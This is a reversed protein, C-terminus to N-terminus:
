NVREWKIEEITQKVALGYKSCVEAKQEHMEIREIYEKNKLEENKIKELSRSKEDVYETVGKAYEKSIQEIVKSFGTRMTSLQKDIQTKMVNKCVMLHKEQDYENITGTQVENNRFLRATGLSVYDWFDAKRKEYVPVNVYAQKKAKSILNNMDLRPLSISYESEIELGLKSYEIELDIKLEKLISNQFDDLWSMFVIAENRISDVSGQNSILRNSNKAREELRDHWVSKSGSSYKDHIDHNLYHTMRAKADNIKGIISEIRNAYEQPDKKKESLEQSQELHISEQNAYGTNMSELIEQIQIFPARSSFKIIANEMQDFNAKRQLDDYCNCSRPIKELVIDPLENFDTFESYESHILQMVSDVAIIQDPALENGDEAYLRVAESYLDDVQGEAYLGAHTLVLFLTDKNRETLNDRVFKHFSESEVPKIPHIFIVANAENMYQYTRDQIGGTANVGPTDILRFGDFNLKLPYGFRITRIIKDAPHEEIYSSILESLGALSTNSKKELMDKLYDDLVTKKSTSYDQLIVDDLITTPIRRYKEKVSVSGKLKEVAEDIDETELDDVITEKSGDGYIIEVSSVDSKYLETIANTNQLVSTPLIEQGLLANIFTSKGSSVEGAVVVNFKEDKMQVIRQLLIEHDIRDENPNCFSNFHEWYDSVQGRLDSLIKDIKM